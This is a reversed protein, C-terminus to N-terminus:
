DPTALALPVLRLPLFLLLLPKILPDRLVQLFELMLHRRLSCDEELLVLLGEVLEVGEEVHGVHHLVGIFLIVFELAQLRKLALVPQRHLFEHLDVLPPDLLHQHLVPHWFPELLPQLIVPLQEHVILPDLPADLLRKRRIDHILLELPIQLPPLQHRLM